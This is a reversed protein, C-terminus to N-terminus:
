LVKYNAFGPLVIIEGKAFPQKEAVPWVFIALFKFCTKRPSINVKRRFYFFDIPVKKQIFILIKKESDFFIKSKM